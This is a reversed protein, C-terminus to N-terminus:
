KKNVAFSFNDFFSTNKLRLFVKRETCLLVVVVLHM